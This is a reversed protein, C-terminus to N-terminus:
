IPRLEFVNTQPALKVSVLRAATTLTAAIALKIRLFNALLIIIVNNLKGAIDM